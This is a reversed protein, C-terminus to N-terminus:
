LVDATVAMAFEVALLLLINELQDNHQGRYLTEFNHPTQIVTVVGDIILKGVYLIAVPLLARILRLALALFTLGPSSRWVMAVYRGLDTLAGFKFMM